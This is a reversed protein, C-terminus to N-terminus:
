VPGVRPPPNPYDVPSRGTTASSGGKWLVHLFYYFFGAVFNGAVLVVILITRKLSRTQRSSLAHWVAGAWLVLATGGVVFFVLGEVARGFGTQELGTLRRDVSSITTAYGLIVWALMAWAAIALMRRAKEVRQLPGITTM